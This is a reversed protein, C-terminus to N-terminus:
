GAPEFALPAPGGAQGAEGAAAALMRWTLPNSLDVAVRGGGGQPRVAWGAWEVWRPLGWLHGGSSAMALAGPLLQTRAAPALAHALYGDLPVQQEGPFRYTGPYTAMVDPWHGGGRAAQEWRAQMEQRSLVHREVSVFPFRRRLEEAAAGFVEEGGPGGAAGPERLDWLTLVLPRGGQPLVDIRFTRPGVRVSPGWPWRVAVSVPRDGGAALGQPAALRSVLVVAAAWLCWAPPTRGAGM